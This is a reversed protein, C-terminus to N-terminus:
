WRLFKRLKSAYRRSLPISEHAANKLILKFNGILLPSVKEVHDLNVIYARNTQQFKQPDLMETLSRLTANVLLEDGNAFHATVETLDVHFYLVDGPHIFIREKSNRKHGLIKLPKGGELYSKLASMRDKVQSKDKLAQRVRDCVKKFRM